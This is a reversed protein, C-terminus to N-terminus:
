GIFRMLFRVLLERVFKCKYMFYCDREGSFVTFYFFMIIKLFIELYFVFMKFGEEKVNLYLIVRKGM